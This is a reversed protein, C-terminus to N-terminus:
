NTIITGQPQVSNGSFEMLKERESFERYIEPEWTKGPKHGGVKFIFPVHSPTFKELRV